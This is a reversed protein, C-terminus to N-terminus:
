ILLTFPIWHLYMYTGGHLCLSSPIWSPSEECRKQESTGALAFCAVKVLLFHLKCLCLNLNRTKIEKALIVHYVTFELLFWTYEQIIVVM